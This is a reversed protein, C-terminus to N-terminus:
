SPKLETARKILKIRNKLSALMQIRAANCAKQIFNEVVVFFRQQNSIYSCFLRFVQLLMLMLLEYRIANRFRHDLSTRHSAIHHSAFMPAHM